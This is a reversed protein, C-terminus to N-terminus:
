PSILTSQSKNRLNEPNELVVCPSVSKLLAYKSLLHNCPGLSPTFYTLCPLCIFWSVTNILRLKHTVPTLETSSGKTLCNQALQRHLCRFIFYSKSSSPEKQSRASRALWVCPCAYDQSLVCGSISSAMPM